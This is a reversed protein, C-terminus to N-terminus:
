TRELLFAGVGGAMGTCVILVERPPDSTSTYDTELRSATNDILGPDALASLGLALQAFVEAELCSGLVGASSFARIGNAARRRWFEAEVEALMGGCANTIVINPSALAASPLRYILRSLTEEHQELKSSRNGLTTLRARPSIGRLKAGEATELVFFAAVSGLCIAERGRTWVNSFPGTLGRGQAYLWRLLELRSGNLAAGVVVRECQGASVARVARDLATVGGAECGSFTRSTGSIGYVISINGALLNPIRALFATPRLESMFIENIASGALLTESQADRDLIKADISADRDPSDSAVYLATSRLLEPNNLLLADQLARGAAYCGYLFQDEMLKRDARKPIFEEYNPASLGLFQFAGNHGFAAIDVSTGPICPAWAESGDVGLSSLMGMGSIVVDNSM